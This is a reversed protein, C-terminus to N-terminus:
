AHIIKRLTDFNNQMSFENSIEELDSRDPKPLNKIEDLTIKVADARNKPVLAYKKDKLERGFDGISELVIVSNGTALYEPIKVPSSVISALNTDRFALGIDTANYINNLKTGSENTILCPRLGYKRSYHEAKEHDYTLIIFQIDEDVDQLQINNIFSFLLEPDQWKQLMGSYLILKQHDEIHHAQRYHRRAEEDLYFRNQDYYNPLVEFLKDQLRYKKLLYSMFNMSVTSISDARNLNDRELYSLVIFKAMRNILNANSHHLEEQPVLGRMDFHLRTQAHQRKIMGGIFCNFYNHAWIFCHDYKKVWQRLERVAAILGLLSRGRIHYYHIDTHYAQLFTKLQEEKKQLLAQKEATLKPPVITTMIIHTQDIIQHAVLNEIFSINVTDYLGEWFNHGGLFVFISKSDTKTMSPNNHEIIQPFNDM